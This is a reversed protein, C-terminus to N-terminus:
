NILRQIEEVRQEYNDSNTIFSGVVLVDAKSVLPITERNLGGDVEIKYHYSNEERLKYLENVKDVSNFLFAQGGSGPVVSMILVLDVYQLCPILTNVDTDPCLSIGVKCGFSHIYDIMIKPNDIAEIHFTIYEPNLTHYREVYAKIDKVMLHIDLKKNYAQYMDVKNSVFNGDMIDLHLYDTSTEEIQNIKKMDDKIGLISTSLKM